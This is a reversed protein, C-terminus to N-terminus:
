LLFSVFHRVFLEELFQEGLFDDFAESLHGYGGTLFALFLGNM